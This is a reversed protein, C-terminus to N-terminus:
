LAQLQEPWYLGYSDGKCGHYLDISTTADHVKVTVITGCVWTNDFLKVGKGDHVGDKLENPLGSKLLNYDRKYVDIEYVITREFIDVKRKADELSSVPVNGAFSIDCGTTADQLKVAAKNCVVWGKFDPGLLRKVEAMAAKTQARIHDFRDRQAQIQFDRVAKGILPVIIVAALVILLIILLKWHKSKAAPQLGSLKNKQNLTRKAM